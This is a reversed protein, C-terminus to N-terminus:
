KSAAPAGPAAGLYGGERSGQAPPPKVPDLSASPLNKGPDQGLYGGQGSVQASSAAPAGSTLNKGPTEGLYGGQGSQALVIGGTLLLVVPTM